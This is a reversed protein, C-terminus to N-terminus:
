IHQGQVLRFFVLFLQRKRYHMSKSIFLDTIIRKFEIQIQNIIGSSNLPVALLQLLNETEEARLTELQRNFCNLAEQYLMFQCLGYRTKLM